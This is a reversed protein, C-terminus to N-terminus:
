KKPPPKWRGHVFDDIEQELWGIRGPSIQTHKPFRGARELRWITTRSVRTRAEVEHRTLLRAPRHPQDDTHMHLVGGYSAAHVDNGHVANQNLGTEFTALFRRLEDYGRLRM